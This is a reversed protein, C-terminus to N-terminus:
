PYIAKKPSEILPLQEIPEQLHPQIEKILIDLITQLTDMEAVKHKRTTPKNAFVQERMAREAQIIRSAEQQMAELEVAYM